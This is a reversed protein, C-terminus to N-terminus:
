VKVLTGWFGIARALRHLRVARDICIIVRVTTADEFCRVNHTPMLLRPNPGFYGSANAEQDGCQPMRSRAFRAALPERAQAYPASFKSNNCTQRRRRARADVIRGFQLRLRCQEHVPPVRLFLRRHESSTAFLTEPQGAPADRTGILRPPRPAAM